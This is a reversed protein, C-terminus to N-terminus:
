SNPSKSASRRERRGPRESANSWIFPPRVLGVLGLEVVFGQALQGAAEAGGAVLQEEVLVLASRQGAAISELELELGDVPEVVLLEADDLLDDLADQELM